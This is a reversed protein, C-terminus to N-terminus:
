RLVEVMEEHITGNSALVSSDSGTRISDGNADTVKGGAEEVILLGASYDWPKLKMEFFANQRGCATYCMDLSAAGLRRIDMCKLFVRKIREFSSDALERYYPNTGVGIVSHAMDAAKNVRVPKGNLFAGGGKQATFLEKMFPNYVIGATIEGNECYALSVASLQMHFMLNTTGDVPDLIWLPKSLDPETHKGEEGLMGAEPCMEKLKEKLYKQVGVDIDTAYDFEGKEHTRQLADENFIISDTSRVLEITEQFDM